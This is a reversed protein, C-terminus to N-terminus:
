DDSGSGGPGSNDGGGHDDGAEVEGHGGRDDGAEAENQGGRDDGPEVEGRDDDRGSNVSGPGSNLSGPGSNDVRAHDEGQDDDVGQPATTPAGTCRPDNAHEAEDCPGRVDEREAANNDDDRVRKANDEATRTHEVTETVTDTTTAPDDAGQSAVVVAALIGFLAVGLILTLARRM